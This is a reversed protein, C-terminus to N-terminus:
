VLFTQVVVVLVNPGYSIASTPALLHQFASASFKKNGALEVTPMYPNYIGYPRQVQPQPAFMELKFTPEMTSPNPISQSQTIPIGQADTKPKQSIQAPQEQSNQKRSSYM